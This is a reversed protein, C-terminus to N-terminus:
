RSLYLSRLSIMQSLICQYHLSFCAVTQAFSESWYLTQQTVDLNLFNLQNLNTQAIIGPESGDLNMVAVKRPVRSGGGDLWYLKSHSLCLWLCRYVCLCSHRIYSSHM